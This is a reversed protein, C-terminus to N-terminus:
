EVFHEHCRLRPAGRTQAATLGIDVPNEGLAILRRSRARSRRRDVIERLRRALSACDRRSTTAGNTNPNRDASLLFTMARVAHAARHRDPRRWSAKALRSTLWLEENTMRGSALIAIESGAFQRLQAAAHTFRLTGIPRRDTQRGRSDGARAPPGDSQLYGFNLRGYDCMWSSNVANNERPTQRYIVDERTGILTNCGTACSTCFSKTEKLFWVRM